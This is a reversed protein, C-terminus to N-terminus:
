GSIVFTAAGLQGNVPPNYKTVSVTVEEAQPYAAKVAKLIRGAAHEILKSPIAMQERVIHHLLVYDATDHLEDSEVSRSMDMRIDLDVTFRGGIKTEEPMCGHYSHCDIGTIRLLQSM